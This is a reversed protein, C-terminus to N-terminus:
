ESLKEILENVDQVSDEDEEPIDMENLFVQLEECSRLIDALDDAIDVEKVLPAIVKILRPNKTDYCLEVIEDFIDQAQKLTM